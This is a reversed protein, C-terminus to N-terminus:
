SMPKTMRMNWMRGMHGAPPRVRMFLHFSIPHNGYASRAADPVAYGTVDGGVGIEYGRWTTVDRVAGFTLATVASPLAEKQTTEFRGYFSTLGRRDTAEVLLTHFAGHDTDNRGVAVTAATFGDPRRKLWAGSATTRRIDGPEAAEPEKLFGYSVQFQWSPSPEYWERVSWSDLAGPDMLDWRNEDPEGGHFISSEVQWPGNDIAGTLVGMAIHTSDLTHHGLPSMPNEAASSRHMFAVPGLAPEGVPAGALTLTFGKALPRRWSAALQMLLDHPHQRDILADGDYTEGVQFIHSYGRDGVTAPDLSLMLNVTLTGHALPRHAMGMWWNPVKFEYEGRPSGQLNVMGFVVGDQMFVWKSATAGHDMGAHPDQAYARSALVQLVVLVWLVSRSM